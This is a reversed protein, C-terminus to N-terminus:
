LTCVKINSQLCLNCNCNGRCFPCLDSVEEEQLQPYWQKICQICYFKEKCKTCPVVINRDSRKCQHCKVPEKGIKRDQIKNPSSSTNDSNASSTEGSDRPRTKLKTDNSSSSRSRNSKVFIMRKREEVSNNYIGRKIKPSGTRDVVNLNGISRMYVDEDGSRIHARNEYKGEDEIIKNKTSVTQRRRRQDEWKRGMQKSAHSRGSSFPTFEDDDDDNESDADSDGIDNEYDLPTKKSVSHQSRVHVAKIRRVGSKKILSTEKSYDSYCNREHFVKTERYPTDRKIPTRARKISSGQYDQRRSEIFDEIKRKRGIGPDCKSNRRAKIENDSYKSLRDENPYLVEM